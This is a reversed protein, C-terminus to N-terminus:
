RAGPVLEGATKAKDQLGGFFTQGGARHAAGFEHDLKADQVLDGGDGAEMDRGHEGDALEAVAGAEDHGPGILEEQFDAATVGVGGGGVVADVGDGEGGLGQGQELGDQGLAFVGTGRGDEGEAGDGAAGAKINQGIFDGQFAGQAVVVGLDPGAEQVPDMAEQFAEGGAGAAAITQFALGEVRDQDVVGLQGPLGEVKELGKETGLGEDLHPRDEAAFVEGEVGLFNGTEVEEQAGAAGVGLFLGEMGGVKVGVFGGKGDADAGGGPKQGAETGTM